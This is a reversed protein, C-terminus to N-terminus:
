SGEFVGIKEGEKLRIYAKKFYKVKGVGAKTKRTRYRGISTKVSAVKVKFYKEIHHKITLKDAKRDVEFVYTNHAALFNNKETVLPKKIVYSM